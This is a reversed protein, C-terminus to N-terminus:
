FISRVFRPPRKLIIKNTFLVSFKNWHKQWDNLIFSKYSLLTILNENLAVLFVDKCTMENESEINSFEKAGFFLYQIM